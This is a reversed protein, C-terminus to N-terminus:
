STSHIFASPYGNNTVYCMTLISMKRRGIKKMHPQKKARDFLSREFMPPYHSSYHLIGTLIHTPKCYVTSLLRSDVRFLKLVPNQWTKGAGSSVPSGMAEGEKQKFYEGRYCFYASKLWLIIRGPLLITRDSLTEDDHLIGYYLHRMMM